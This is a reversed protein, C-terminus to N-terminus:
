LNEEKLPLETRMRTQSFIVKQIEAWTQAYSNSKRLAKSHTDRKGALNPHTMKLGLAALKAIVRRPKMQYAELTAVLLAIARSCGQNFGLPSGKRTDHKENWIKIARELPWNETIIDVVKSLQHDTLDAWAEDASPQWEQIVKETEM